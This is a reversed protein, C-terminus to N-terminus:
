AHSDPFWVLVPTFICFLFFFPSLILFHSSDKVNASILVALKASLCLSRRGLLPTNVSSRKSICVQNLSRAEAEGEVDRRGGRGGGM